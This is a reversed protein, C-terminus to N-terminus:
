AAEPKLRDLEADIETRIADLREQCFRYSEMASRFDAVLTDVNDPGGKRLREAIETLKRYAEAYAHTSGVATKRIDNM